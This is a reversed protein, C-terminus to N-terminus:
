AINDSPMRSLAGSELFLSWRGYQMRKRKDRANEAERLKNVSVGKEFSKLPDLKGQSIYQQPLISLEKL